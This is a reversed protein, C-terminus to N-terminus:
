KKTGSGWADQCDGRDFRYQKWYAWLEWPIRKYARWTDDRSGDHKWAGLKVALFLVVWSLAWTVPYFAGFIYTQIIHVREHVQLSNSNYNRESACFIVLGWTQAGPKFLIRTTGDKGKKALVEIAGERWRWEEVGYLPMLAVGVLSHIVMWVPTFLSVLLFISM